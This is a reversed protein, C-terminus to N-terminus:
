IREQVPIVADTMWCGQYPEERQRSLMFVYLYVKSGRHRLRVIQQARDDQVASQGLEATEFGILYKYLPNKVMEVLREVSGIAGRNAPSAFQWAQRIGKNGPSLDNNQLADLQITVVMGPTLQPNPMYERSPNTDHLM